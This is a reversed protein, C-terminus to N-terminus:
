ILVFRKVLRTVTTKPKAAKEVAPQVSFSFIASAGKGGAFAPAVVTGPGAM